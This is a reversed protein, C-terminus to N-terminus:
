AFFVSIFELLEEVAAAAAVAAVAVALACLRQVLVQTQAPSMGTFIIHLNFRGGGGVCVEEAIVIHGPTHTHTHAMM